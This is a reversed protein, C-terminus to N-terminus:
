QKKPLLLLKILNNFKNWVKTKDILQLHIQSILSEHLIVFFLFSNLSGRPSM